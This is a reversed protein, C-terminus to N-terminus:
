AKPSFHNRLVDASITRFDDGCQIRAQDPYDPDRGVVKWARKDRGIAEAGIYPTVDLEPASRARRYQAPIKPHAWGCGRGELGFEFVELGLKDHLWGAIYGRHCWDEDKEPAEYCLLAADRGGSLQEIKAVTAQPDLRALGDLFLQRYERVSATKFWEGPALEPMKRFGAPYGRPTGRSVGIKQITDPLRTFWSSTYIRM